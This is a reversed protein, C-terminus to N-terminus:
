WTIGVQDPLRTTARRQSFSQYPFVLDSGGADGASADITTVNGVPDRASLSAETGDFGGYLRVNSSLTISEPYTGEAVWVEGGGAASAADVATQITTFATSWSTGEEIGSANDKDVYWVDAFVMPCLAVVITLLVTCRKM